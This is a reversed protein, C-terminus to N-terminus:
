PTAPPPAGFGAEPGVRADGPSPPPVIRHLTLDFVLPGRPQGPVGKFAMAEPVWFRTTEGAVMTKIGDTWGPLARSVVLQIPKGRPATSDFARGDATWGTYDVEVIDTDTPHVKGTGATLVVYRVGAATARAKAPAAAVDPPAPPIPKGPHIAVLELEFCLTGPPLESSEEILPVALPTPNPRPLWVRRREGVVMSQLALALGAGERYLPVNRPQRRLESSDFIRGTSSWGTYHFTVGDYSRPRVKGTGPRVVLSALGSPHRTATPPIAAVDPPTAPAPEFSILEVLYVLTEPPEVPTGFYGVEPPVWVMAKEGAQMTTVATAFGPALMALSQQVPRNRTRTSLFTAGDLRWGDLNISVLDNRSPRPGAGAVLRKVKIVATPAEITGTVSEADAPPAAVPLPPTVQPTPNPRADRGADRPGTTAPEGERRSPSGKCGAATVAVVVVLVGLGVAAGARRARPAGEGGGTM